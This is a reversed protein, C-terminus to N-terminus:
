IFSRYHETVPSRPLRNKLSKHSLSRIIDTYQRQHLKKLLPATYGNVFSLSERQYFKQHYDGDNRQQHRYQHRCQLAHPFLGPGDVAEVAEFLKAHGHGHVGIIVPTKDGTCQVMFDFPDKYENRVQAM